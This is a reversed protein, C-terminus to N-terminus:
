KEFLFTILRPLGNRDQKHNWEELKILKFNNEFAANIFDSISHLYSPIEITVGDKIFNAKKGIYQRFPHLESIYFKGEKCLLQYAETFIFNLNEIHELILNCTILNVPGVVPWKKAIDSKLFTVNDAKIKEKSKKIMEESFDVAFVKNAIQSFMVTNKGTGCGLELITKFQLKGFRRNTVLEDIDRTFNDDKDYSDSWNNYASKINM